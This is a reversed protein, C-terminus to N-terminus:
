YKSFKDDECLSYALNSLDYDVSQTFKHFEDKLLKYAVEKAKVFDNTGLCKSNIGLPSYTVFWLDGCGAYKHIKIKADSLVFVTGDKPDKGINANSIWKM